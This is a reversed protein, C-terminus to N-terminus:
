NLGKNTPLKRFAKIQSVLDDIVLYTRHELIMTKVAEIAIREIDAFSFGDLLEVADSLEGELKVGNLLRELDTRIEFQAPLPFEVVDDFRRWLAPDLMYEHNSAAIVISQKCTFRDMAQLLTNVVRKLEGVDNPDDRSKGLADVEDLLLVMPTNNATEFVADLHQATDGLYSSILSSLRVTGIQLGLEHALYYATMTKGCGPPGWFLLKKKPFYGFAALTAAAKHEELVRGIKDATSKSFVLREASVDSQALNLLSVGGKDRPLLVLEGARRQDGLAKKLDRALAHHNAATEDSIIGQAVRFFLSDDRDRYAALLKKLQDGTAM